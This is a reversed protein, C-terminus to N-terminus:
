KAGVTESTKDNDRAFILGAGATIAAITVEWNVTTTPDGDIIALVVGFIATGISCIGMLTTKWSMKM